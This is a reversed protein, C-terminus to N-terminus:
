VVQATPNAPAAISNSFHSEPLQDRDNLATRRTEAGRRERSDLQIVAICNRNVPGCTEKECFRLEFARHTRTIVM